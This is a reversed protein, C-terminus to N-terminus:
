SRNERSMRGPPSPSSVPLSVRVCTGPSDSRDRVALGGEDGYHRRLRADVARLGVGAAEEFSWGERLGAGDDLVEVVARDGERRARIEVSGAGSRERVGHRLANELLPQLLLAPVTVGLVDDDAEVRLEVERGSRTRGLEVYDRCFEIERALHVRTGPGADVVYRLLDGLQELTALALGRDGARLCSGVLHLSNFLFHPPIRSEALELELDRLRDALRRVEDQTESVSAVGVVGEVEGDSGRLPRLSVLNRVRGGDKRRHEIELRDFEEGSLLRRRLQEMEEARDPPLVPLPEGLVEEASWGYMREAGPNWLVVRLDADTAVIAVTTSRLLTAFTRDDTLELVSDGERRPPGSPPTRTGGAADGRPRRGRRPGAVPSSRPSHGPPLPQKRDM